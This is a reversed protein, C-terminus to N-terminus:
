NLFTSLIFIFPLFVYLSATLLVSFRRRSARCHLATHKMKLTMRSLLISLGISQQSIKHCITSLPNAPVFFAALHRPSESCHTFAALTSIFFSIKSQQSPPCASESLHRARVGEAFGVRKFPLGLWCFQSNQRTKYSFSDRLSRDFTEPHL